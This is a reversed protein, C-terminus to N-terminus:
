KIHSTVSDIFNSTMGTRSLTQTIPGYILNEVIGSNASFLTNLCVGANMTSTLSEKLAAIGQFIFQLLQGAAVKIGFLCVQTHAFQRMIQVIIIKALAPYGIVVINILNILSTNKVQLIVIVTLMIQIQNLSLIIIKKISFIHRIVSNNLYTNM